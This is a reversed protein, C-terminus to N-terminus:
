DKEQQGDEYLKPVQLGVLAATRKVKEKQSSQFEGIRHETLITRYNIMDELMEAYAEQVDPQAKSFHRLLLMKGEENSTVAKAVSNVLRRSM